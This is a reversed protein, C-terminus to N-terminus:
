NYQRKSIVFLESYHKLMMLGTTHYGFDWKVTPNSTEDEPIRKLSYIRTLHIGKSVEKKTSYNNIM